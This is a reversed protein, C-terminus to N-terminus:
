PSVGNEIDTSIMIVSVIFQVRFNEVFNRFLAIERCILQKQFKKVSILSREPNGKGQRACQNAL